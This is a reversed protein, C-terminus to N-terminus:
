RYEEGIEDSLPGDLRNIRDIEAAILAGAKALERVRDNPVPKFWKIEWPWYIPKVGRYDEPLAYTAAARALEDSIYNKDHEPSWGEETIQRERELAILEIGTKKTKM